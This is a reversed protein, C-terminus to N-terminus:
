LVLALRLEVLGEFAAIAERVLCWLGKLLVVLTSNWVITEGVEIRGVYINCRM